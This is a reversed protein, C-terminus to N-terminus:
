GSVGEDSLWFKLKEKLLDPNVLKSLYDNMGTELCKERNSQM